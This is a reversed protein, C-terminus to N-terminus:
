IWEWLNEHSVSYSRGLLVQLLFDQQRETDGLDELWFWSLWWRWAEAIRLAPTGHGEVLYAWRFGAADGCGGVWQFGIM